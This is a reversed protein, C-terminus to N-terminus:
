FNIKKEIIYEPRKKTEDYIRAIYESIIWLSILQVGGFFVITIIISTWGSLINDTKFIFSLIAYILICLSVIISTFGLFGVIKLPKTSLSIIGDLALKIMKGLTYKTKGAERVDREYEIPVQAFGAYSYLGRLYKNKEPMSNIVNIVERSLLRFDGADEPVYIDSIKNILKYFMKASYIKFKSEGKRNIRKAYVVSNGQEYLKLMDVILEPPDQMDADIVIAIDGSSSKLGSSVAPQHGFNRSFSIIKFKKDKQSIDELINFTNDKSGDNVCIIEYDYEEINNLVKKVRDYCIKVMEEENYMPIILSITKKEM